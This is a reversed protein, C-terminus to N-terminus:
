PMLLGVASSLRVLLTTGRTGAACIVELMQREFPVEVAISRMRHRELEAALRKAVQENAREDAGRREDALWAEGAPTLRLCLEVDVSATSEADKKKIHANVLELLGRSVLVRWAAGAARRSPRGRLGQNYVCVTLV